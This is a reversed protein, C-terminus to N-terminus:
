RGKPGCALMQNKVRKKLSMWGHIQEGIDCRYLCLEDVFANIRPLDGSHTMSFTAKNDIKPLTVVERIFLIEEDAM